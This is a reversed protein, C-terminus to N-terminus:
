SVRGRRKEGGDKTHVTYPYDRTPDYKDVKAKTGKKVNKGGFILEKLLIVEDGKKVEYPPTIMVNVEGEV